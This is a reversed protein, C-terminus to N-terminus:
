DTSALSCSFLSFLKCTRYGYSPQPLDSEWDTKKLLRKMTSDTFLVVFTRSHLDLRYFGSFMFFLGFLKCMWYGYSLWPLDSKWDMKQLRKMTPNSFLVVFARNHLDLQYFNSLMFFLGFLKCTRYGYSLRPLDSNWDTKKAFAEDYLRYIVCCFNQHTFRISLLRLVHFVFQM